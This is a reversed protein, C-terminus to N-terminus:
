NRKKNLQFLFLGVPLFYLMSIWNNFFSGTPILPFLNIAFCISVCLLAMDINKKDIFRLKLLKLFHIIFYILVTFVFTFGIIGTEALLQMYTNHPHTTCANVGIEKYEAKRCELRFNRVGVGFFINKKFMKIASTYHEQHGRSFIQINDVRNDTLLYKTNYILRYNLNPNFIIILLFTSILSVSILSKKIIKERWFIFLIFLSMILLAIAAREGSLIILFLIVVSLVYFYINLKKNFPILFKLAIIIPFIRVLYSGQVLEGGFIGSIRFEYPNFQNLLIQKLSFPILFIVLLVLSWFFYMKFKENNEFLYWVAISFIGFRFYFLSSRFSNTPFESISSSFILYLCFIIFLKFLKLNYYKYVKFKFSIFIYTLCALVLFFEAVAAGLILGFPVFCTLIALTQDFANKSYHM